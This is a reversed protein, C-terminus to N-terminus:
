KRIQNTPQNTPQNLTAMAGGLLARLSAASVRNAACGCGERRWGLGGHKGRESARQSILCCPYPNQQTHTNKKPPTEFPGCGAFYFDVAFEALLPEFDALAQAKSPVPADIAGKPGPGRAGYDPESAAAKALDATSITDDLSALFPFFPKPHRPTAM